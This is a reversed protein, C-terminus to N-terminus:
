VAGGLATGRLQNMRNVFVLLEAVVPYLEEPISAGVSVLSLAEALEPNAEVPVGSERAIELLRDAVLGQGAAVVTPAEDVGHAYRLAVAKRREQDFEEGGTM